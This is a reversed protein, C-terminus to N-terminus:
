LNYWQANMFGRLDVNEKCSSLPEPPSLLHPSNDAQSWESVLIDLSRWARSRRKGAKIATEDSIMVLCIQCPWPYMLVHYLKRHYFFTDPLGWKKTFCSSQHCETHTKETKVLNCQDSFSSLYLNLTVAFDSAGLTLHFMSLSLGDWCVFTPLSGVICKPPM